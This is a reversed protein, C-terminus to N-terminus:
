ILPKQKIISYNRPYKKQTEKIKKIFIFTRFNDIDSLYSKDVKEVKCSLLSLAKKSSAIENESENSKYAILYGNVKIFPIILEILIPLQSVARSVSVDFFSRYNKVLDEVRQNLVTVNFLKLKQILMRLFNAKKENPECLYMHSQPFILALPVGPFGPGSGVDICKKNSLDFFQAGLISDYFHKLIIDEDNTISTLNYKDNEEKLFNLYLSFKEIIQSVEEDNLNKNIEKIKLELENLKM